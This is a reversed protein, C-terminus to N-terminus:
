EHNTAAGDPPTGQQDFNSSRVDFLVHVGVKSYYIYIHIVHPAPPAARVAHSACALPVFNPSDGLYEGYGGYICSAPTIPRCSTM